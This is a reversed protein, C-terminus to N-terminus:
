LSLTKHALWNKFKQKKDPSLDKIIDELEEPLYDATSEDADFVLHNFLNKWISKDNIPLNSISLKAHMLSLMPANFTSAPEKWFYNILLNIPDLSEVNHWWMYPIFIADGPVLTSEYLEQLALTYRPYRKLDPNKIDVMSVPVNAPTAMLPGIYLNKLQKPPFLTFKRRGAVVFALNDSYDFHTQVTARNGLWARAKIREDLLTTSNEDSFNPLHNPISIGQIAISDSKQQESISLLHNITDTIPLPKVEFNFGNIYKNYFFRGHSSAPTLITEAPTGNDFQCIYDCIEQPSKKAAKVAPWSDALGKIVAPQNLPVIESEFINRNVNTWERITKM